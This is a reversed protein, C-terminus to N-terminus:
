EIVREASLSIVVKNVLVEREAVVAAGAKVAAKVAAVDGTLTCFAKRGL